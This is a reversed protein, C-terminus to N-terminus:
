GQSKEPYLHCAVWTAGPAVRELPPAESACRQAGAREREPCRPHFRCGPPPAAPSPVEGRAAGRARERSLGPDAPLVADLLARTYPHRPTTLVERCPGIEALRGLYMVAVDECVHPVLALDHTIILLALPRQQRLRALLQVIQARVSVDLASTPEDLVLLDPELALARAIAVRQRQGGSLEHPYRKSFGADLGVADLLAIARSTREARTGIRHVAFPESLIQQVTQRPDLSAHPDQFVLQLRRRAAAPRRSVARELEEGGLRISGARPRELGMLARAVSSKGCGSEGVLALSGGARLTFSLGDVARVRAGRGRAFEVQLDRVELLAASV